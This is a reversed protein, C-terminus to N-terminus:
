FNMVIIEVQSPKLKMNEILSYCFFKFIMQCNAWVMHFHINPLILECQISTSTKMHIRPHVSGFKWMSRLARLRALVNMRDFSNKNEFYQENSQHSSIIVHFPKDTTVLLPPVNNSLFKRWANQDGMSWKLACMSVLRLKKTITNNDNWNRGLIILRWVM